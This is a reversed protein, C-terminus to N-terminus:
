WSEKSFVKVAGISVLCLIGVLGSVPIPGDTAPSVPAFAAAEGPATGVQQLSAPEFSEAIPIERNEPTVAVVTEKQMEVPTEARKVEASLVPQRAERALEVARIKPFVFELGSVRGPYFLEHIVMPCGDPRESFAVWSKEHPTATLRPIALVTALVRDEKANLVEVVGRAGALDLLRFVYTGAPLVIGPLEVSQSFVLTTKKNWEDARAGFTVFLMALCAFVISPKKLM